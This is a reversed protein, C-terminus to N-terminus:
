RKAHMEQTTHAIRSNFAVPKMDVPWLSLCAELVDRVLRRWNDDSGVWQTVLFCCRLREALPLPVVVISKSFAWLAKWQPFGRRGDTGPLFWQMVAFRGRVSSQLPHHRHYFLHTQTEVAPGMLTLRAILTQDSMPFEEVLPTRRLANSRILGHFEPVDDNSRLVRGYRRSPKPHALERETPLEQLTDGVLRGHKASCLVADPHSDLELVCQELFGPACIDDHAM